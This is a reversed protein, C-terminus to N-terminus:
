MGPLNKRVWAIYSKEDEDAYIGRESGPYFKIEDPDVKMSNIKKITENLKKIAKNSTKGDKTSGTGGFTLEIEQKAEQEAIKRLKRETM